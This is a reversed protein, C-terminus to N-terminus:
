KIAGKNQENKDKVVVAPIDLEEGHVVRPTSLEWDTLFKVRIMKIGDKM